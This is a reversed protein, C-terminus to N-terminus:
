LPLRRYVMEKTESEQLDTAYVISSIGRYKAEDPIALVPKPTKEIVSSTNSGFIKELIGSAGTTGMVVMDIDNEQVFNIIEDVVLGQKSVLQINLDGGFESKVKELEEKSTKEAQETASMLLEAPMNPDYITVSYVNLIYLEANTRKAIEAAYKGSNRSTESYDTPFLIRKM